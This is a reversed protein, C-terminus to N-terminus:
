SGPSVPKGQAALAAALIAELHIAISTEGLKYALKTLESIMDLLYSRGDDRLAQAHTM